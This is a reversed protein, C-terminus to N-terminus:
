PPPAKPSEATQSLLMEIASRALLVRAEEPIKFPPRLSRVKDCMDSESVGPAPGGSSTAPAPAPPFTDCLLSVSTAASSFRTASAASGANSSAEAGGALTWVAHQILLAARAATPSVNMWRDVFDPASALTALPDFRGTKLSLETAFLIVDLNRGPDPLKKTEADLAALDKTLEPTISPLSCNIATSRLDARLLPGLVDSAALSRSAAIIAPSCHGPRKHRALLTAADYLSGEARLEEVAMM